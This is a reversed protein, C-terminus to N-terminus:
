LLEYTKEPGINFITDLVSLNAIFEGWQQPYTPHNFEQWQLSIGRAQFQKEDLYDRAGTGSIYTDAKLVTLIELLADTSRVEKNWELESALVVKKQPDFLNFM